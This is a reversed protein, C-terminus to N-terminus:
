TLNPCHHPPVPSSNQQQQAPSLPGTSIESSHRSAHSQSLSAHPSHISIHLDPSKLWSENKELHLVTFQPSHLKMAVFSDTAAMASRTAAVTFQQKGLQGALLFTMSLDPFIQLTNTHKFSYIPVFYHLFFFQCKESVIKYNLATWKERGNNKSTTCDQIYQITPRLIPLITWSSALPAKWDM